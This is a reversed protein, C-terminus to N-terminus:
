IALITIKNSVSWLWNMVASRYNGRTMICRLADQADPSQMRYHQRSSRAHEIIFRNGPWIQYDIRFLYFWNLWFLIVRLYHLIGVQLPFNLSSCKTMYLHLNCTHEDFKKTYCSKQLLFVCYRPCTQKMSTYCHQSSASTNEYVPEHSTYIFEAYPM